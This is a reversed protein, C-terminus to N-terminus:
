RCRIYQKGPLQKVLGSFEMELLASSIEGASLALQEVLVDVHIPEAGLIAFLAAQLAGEPAPHAPAAAATHSIGLADLVDAPSATLTAKGSRILQHCGESRSSNIAGPMAFLPRQQDIAFRATILAGGTLGSEIVVTALSMGSIIRNRQPFYVPMAATGCPYESVIAGGASVIKDALVESARPSIKDIGCAIVATTHAKHKVAEAHAYTDIGTALGSVVSAGAQGFEEAYREAGYRGYHSCRRTGVIALAPTAAHPLSGRVWLVAPPYATHRLGAPYAGDALTLPYVELKAASEVIRHAKELLTSPSEAFLSMDSAAKGFSERAAEELSNYRHLVQSAESSKLRRVLTLAVLETANWQKM